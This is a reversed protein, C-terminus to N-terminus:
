KRLHIVVLLMNRDSFGYKPEKCCISNSFVNTTILYSNMNCVCNKIKTDISSYSLTILQFIDILKSTTGLMVSIIKLYGFLSYQLAFVRKHLTFLPYIITHGIIHLCVPLLVRISPRADHYNLGLGYTVSVRTAIVDLSTVALQIPSHSQCFTKGKINVPLHSM